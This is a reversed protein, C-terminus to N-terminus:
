RGVEALAEALVVAPAVDGHRSAVTECWDAVRLSYDALRITPLLVSRVTGRQRCAATATDHRYVEFAAVSSDGALRQVGALVWGRRELVRRMAEPTVEDLADRDLGALASVARKLHVVKQAVEALDDHSHATLPRPPGKLALAVGDLIRAQREVLAVAADHEAHLLADYYDRLDVLLRGDASLPIFTAGRMSAWPDRGEGIFGGVDLGPLCAVLRPYRGGTDVRMRLVAPRTDQEGGPRSTTMRSVFWYGDHDLEHREVDDLSPAPPRPPPDAPTSEHAADGPAALAERHLIEAAVRALCEAATPDFAVKLHEDLRDAVARLGDRHVDCVVRGNCAIQWIVEELPRGPHDLDTPWSARRGGALADVLWLAADDVSEPVSQEPGISVSPSPPRGDTMGRGARLGLIVAALLPEVKPYNHLDPWRPAEVFRTEGGVTLAAGIPFRADLFPDLLFHIIRYSRTM